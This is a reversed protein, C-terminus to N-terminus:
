RRRSGRRWDRDTLTSLLDLDNIVAFPAAFTGLFNKKGFANIGNKVGVASDAQALVTSPVRLLRVGRHATAAAYGAVDLVAGGGVTVVYAQRDIHDLTSRPASRTSARCDNKIGEGDSPGLQGPPLQDM